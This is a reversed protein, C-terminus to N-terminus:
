WGDDEGYAWRSSLPKEKPIELDSCFEPSKKTRDNKRDDFFIFCLYEFIVGFIDGPFEM